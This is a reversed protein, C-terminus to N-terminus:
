TRGVEVGGIPDILLDTDREDAWVKLNGETIGVILFMMKKDASRYAEVSLRATELRQWFNNFIQGYYKDQSMGEDWEPDNDDEPKNKLDRKTPKRKEERDGCEFALM